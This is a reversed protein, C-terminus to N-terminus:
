GANEALIDAHSGSSLSARLQASPGGEGLLDQRDDFNAIRFSVGGM